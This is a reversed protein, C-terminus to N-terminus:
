ILEASKELANWFLLEYFQIIRAVRVLEKEQVGADL